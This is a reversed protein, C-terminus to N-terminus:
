AAEEQEDNLEYVMWMCDESYEGVGNEIHLYGNGGPIEYDGDEPFEMGTWEEWQGISPPEQDATLVLHSNKGVGAFDGGHRQHTRIWPDQHLGTEPDVLKAYEEMSMDLHKARESPRAPAIVRDYGLEKARKKFADLIKGSMGQGRAEQSVFASMALLANPSKGDARDKLAQELGGEWGNEPLVGDLHIPASFGGALLKDGSDDTLVVHTDAFAKEMAVYRENTWNGTLFKPFSAVDLSDAAEALEPKDALTEWKGASEDDEAGTQVEDNKVLTLNPREFHGDPVGEIDLLSTNEIVLALHRAVREQRHTIMAENAETQLFSEHQYSLAEAPM